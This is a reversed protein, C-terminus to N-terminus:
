KLLEEKIRELIEATMNRANPEYYSYGDLQFAIKTIKQLKEENTM